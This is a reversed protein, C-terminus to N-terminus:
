VDVEIPLLRKDKGFVLMTADRSHENTREGWGTVLKFDKASLKTRNNAPAVMQFNIGVDTLFDEWIVADRKISGAGQLQERGSRGFWKRLRADEVRVLVPQQIRVFSLAKHIAMSGVFELKKTDLNWVAIGTITGTDIGMIKM